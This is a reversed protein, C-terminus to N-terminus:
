LRCKNANDKLHERDFERLCNHLAPEKFVIDRFIIGNLAPITLALILITSILLLKFITILM